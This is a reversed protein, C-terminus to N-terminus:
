ASPGRLYEYYSEEDDSEDDNKIKKSSFHDLINKICHDLIIKFIAPHIRKKLCREFTTRTFDTPKAIIYLYPFSIYDNKSLCYDLIDQFTKSVVNKLAAEQAEAVKRNYDEMIKKKMRAPMKKMIKPAPIVEVDPAKSYNFDTLFETATKDFCDKTVTYITRALEEILPITPHSPVSEDKGLVFINRKRANELISCFVEFLTICKGKSDDIIFSDIKELAAFTPKIFIPDDSEFAYEISTRQTFKEFFYVDANDFDPYDLLMKFYKDLHSKM